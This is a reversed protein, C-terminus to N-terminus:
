PTSAMIGDHCKMAFYFFITKLGLQAPAEMRSNLKMQVHVLKDASIDTQM